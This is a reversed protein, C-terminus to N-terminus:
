AQNLIGADGLKKLLDFLPAVDDLNPLDPFDFRAVADMASQVHEISSLVGAPIFSKLFENALVKALTASLATATAKVEGPAAQLIPLVFRIIAVVRAISSM